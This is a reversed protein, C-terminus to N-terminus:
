PRKGALTTTMCRDGHPMCCSRSTTVALRARVRTLTWDDLTHAAIQSLSDRAVGADRLRAALQGPLAALADPGCFTRSGPSVHRFHPTTM